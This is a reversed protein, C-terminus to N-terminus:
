ARMKLTIVKSDKKTTLTGKELYCYQELEEASCGVDEVLQNATLINNDLLLAIAQKHAFPKEIPM